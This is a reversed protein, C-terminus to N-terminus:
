LFIIIIRNKNYKRPGPPDTQVLWLASTNSKNPLLLHDAVAVILAYSTVFVWCVMFWTIVAATSPESKKSDQELM